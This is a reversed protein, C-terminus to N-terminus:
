RDRTIVADAMVGLLDRAHSAPLPALLRKASAVCESALVRAAEISGTQDLAEILEQAHAHSLDGSAQELLLLTRGRLRPQAHALHHIIPYTLKGKEVDKGVPKGLASQQATLDLLDDQVQFAVGLERAFSAVAEKQSSTAGSCIAGLEASVAILEGTKRSVLERYTEADLSFNERHHLQLLEGTCTVMSARGVALASQSNPLTSCLHYASAILYDGLIVAAENGRLRNVTAGRRRTEAEDLVDDHVLTAMHVMEVVAAATIHDQTILSEPATRADLVRPHTAVGCLLVLTPRLMKGRYREIHRVLQAVPPLDSALQKEFVEEVQTLRAAIALSLPELASPIQVVGQM